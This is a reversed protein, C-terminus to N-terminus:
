PQAETRGGDSLAKFYAGVLDEYGEPAAERSGGVVQERLDPPLDPSARDLRLGLGPDLQRELTRLEHLAAKRQRAADDYRQDRLAEDSSQLLAAAEDIRTNAVGGLELQRAVKQTKEMLMQQRAGLREMDNVIDPPTGGQLGRSGGGTKRGGGTAGRPDLQKGAQVQGTEYPENTLRAPTPRGEMASSEAGVMQGSSRGRRGAGSRGGMESANPLQNGTKGLAAFSSIPGDAIDWGVQMNGGWSGTVDDAEEDFEDMDEILDGVIDQLSEPLKAEPVEFRGELADEMVWKTNDGIDPSWMELDELVTEALAKIGEEVPTAIETTAPTQKKEIEEFISEVSDALASDKVFGEPLKLIQDVADKAWHKWRDPRFAVDPLAALDEAGADDDGKKPLKDFRDDLEKVEQLFRDLDAALKAMTELTRGHAAPDSKEMRKLEQRVQQARTLRLLIDELAAVIQDQVPLSSEAAPRGAQADSADRYHELMGIVDAMPGRALDDLGEVISEAPLAANRMLASLQLTQERIAAQRTVLGAAAAFTATEARNQRQLRILQEVIKAYDPLQRGLAADVAAPDLVSLRHRRSVGRGPGSKAVDNGDVAEAWYEVRAGPTLGLERPTKTLQTRARRERPQQSWSAWEVPPTDKAADRALLWITAVGIDDAAEVDFTVPEDIQANRDSAPAILTVTPAADRLPTVRFTAGTEVRNGLTDTLTFGFAAAADVTFAAGWSQSAGSLAADADGSWQLTAASLPQSMTARLEVKSGPLAAVQGDAGDLTQPERATYAPPTVIFSIAEVRPRPTVRLRVSGSAGDGAVVSLGGGRSVSPLTARYRGPGDPTMAVSTSQRAEDVFRLFVAPPTQGTVEAIAEVDSGELVTLGDVPAVLEVRTLTYPEIGAWPLLVRAASTAAAPGAAFGLVLAFGLAGALGLAFRRLRDDRVAPSVDVNECAQAADGIVSRGLESGAFAPVRGLQWANILRGALAPVRQELLVAFYDQHHAQRARGVVRRATFVVAAVVLALLLWRGAHGARTLLDWAVAASLAALLAATIALTAEVARRVRLRQRTEDVLEALQAYASEM